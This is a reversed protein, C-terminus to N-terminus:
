IAEHGAAYFEECHEPSLCECGREGCKPGRELREPQPPVNASAIIAAVPYTERIERLAADRNAARIVGDITGAHNAYWYLPEGWGFYTGNCDYGGDNLHIKRVCIRGAYEMPEQHITPRGMAAGRAPNGCWGKPDHLSYDPTPRTAM